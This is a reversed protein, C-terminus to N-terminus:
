RRQKKRAFLRRWFRPRRHVRAHRDHEARGTKEEGTQASFERGTESHPLPPPVYQAM